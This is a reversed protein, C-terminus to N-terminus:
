INIEIEENLYISYLIVKEVKRGMSEELAKRYLDLQNKYKNILNEKEEFSNDKMYDTKYDVLVLKDDKDIYFLDIIGQVLIKEDLDDSFERDTYLDKAKINTYFPMEKCISKAELLNKFLSSYTFNYIKEIDIASAQAKTIIERRVLDDILLQVEDITPKKSFDLKQLVLHTLTGKEASSIKTGNSTLKEGYKAPM